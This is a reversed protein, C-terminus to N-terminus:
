QGRLSRVEIYVLHFQCPQIGRASQFISDARRWPGKVCFLLTVAEGRFDVFGDAIM